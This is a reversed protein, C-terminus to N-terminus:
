PKQVDQMVDNLLKGLRPTVVRQAITMAETSLKPTLSMMKRGLPSQYFATLQRIEAVTYNNAYLPVMETIMEDVLAPDSFIKGVSQVVGPLTRDVRAVAEKKQEASLKPDAQILGVAQQRMISPMAKQMEGYMALMNKRVEMADLMTKVAATTQPDAVPAALAPSPLAAFAAAATLAVLFKKM